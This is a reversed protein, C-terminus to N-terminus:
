LWDEPRCYERPERLLRSRGRRLPGKGTELSVGPIEAVGENPLEELDHLVIVARVVGPLQEILESFVRDAADAACAAGAVDVGGRGSLGGGRRRGSTSRTGTRRRGLAATRMRDIAANTAIRYVWTSLSAEGRFAKLAQNVKLLVEQTLDAADRDGLLRM